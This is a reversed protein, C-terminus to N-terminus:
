LKLIHVFPITLILVRPCDNTTTPLLLYYQATTLLLLDHYTDALIHLYFHTTTPLLDYYTM